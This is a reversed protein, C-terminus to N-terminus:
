PLPSQAARGGRPDVGAATIMATLEDDMWREFIVLPATSRVCVRHGSGPDGDVLGASCCFSLTNGSRFTSFPIGPDKVLIQARRVMMTATNNDKNNNKKSSRSHFAFQDCQRRSELAQRRNQGRATGFPRRAPRGRRCASIRPRDMRASVAAACTAPRAPERCRPRCAIVVDPDHLARPSQGVVLARTTLKSGAGWRHEIALEDEPPRDGVAAQRRGDTMCNSGFPLRSRAQPPGASGSEPGADPLSPAKGTASWRARCRRRGCM